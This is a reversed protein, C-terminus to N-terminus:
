VCREASPHAWPRMGAALATLPTYSVAPPRMPHRASIATNRIERRSNFDTIAGSFLFDINWLGKTDGVIYGYVIVTIFAQCFVFRSDSVIYGARTISLLNHRIPNNRVTNFTSLIFSKIAISEQKGSVTWHSELDVLHTVVSNIASNVILILGSSVVQLAPLLIHRRDIKIQHSLYSKSSGHFEVRSSLKGPASPWYTAPSLVAQLLERHWQHKRLVRRKPECLVAFLVGASRVRPCMPGICFQVSFNDPCKFGVFILVRRQCFNPLFESSTAQASQSTLPETAAAPKAAVTAM